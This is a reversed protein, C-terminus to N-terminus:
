QVVLDVWDAHDHHIGDETGDVILEVKKLGRIPINFKIPATRGKVVPSEFLTMNGKAIKFRVSGRAGVEDDIGCIGKLIEYQKKLRLTIKLNAHTGIGSSYM